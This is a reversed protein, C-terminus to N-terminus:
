WYITRRRHELHTLAKQAFRLWHNSRIISIRPLAFLNDDSRALGKHTAVACQYGCNQVAQIAAADIDGFPYCFSTIPQNLLQELANKSAQLESLQEQKSLQTMYVHNVTHSGIEHGDAVWQKIEKASMLPAKLSGKALMWKNVGGIQSTVIFNTATFGLTNLIPRAYEYVNQYGDDFTIVVVKDKKKEQIYPLGESLSVGRYGLRKLLLMQHAFRRPHVTAGRLYAGRQPPIGIQHYMLIPIM